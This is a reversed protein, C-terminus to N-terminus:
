VSAFLQIWAAVTGILTGMVVLSWGWASRDYDRAQTAEEVSLTGFVAQTLERRARRRRLQRWFPIERRIRHIGERVLNNHAKLFEMATLHRGVELVAQWVSGILITTAALVLAYEM